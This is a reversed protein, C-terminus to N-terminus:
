GLSQASFGGAQSYAAAMWMLQEVCSTSPRDWWSNAPPSAVRNLYQALHADRISNAQSSDNFVLNPLVKDRFHATTNRLSPCGGIVLRPMSRPTNPSMGVLSTAMESGVPVNKGVM